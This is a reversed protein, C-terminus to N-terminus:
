WLFTGGPEVTRADARRGLLGHVLGLGKALVGNVKGFPLAAVLLFPWALLDFLVFSAWRGPSPHRELFRWSGLGNLYKRRPSYGGGTAGSGTHRALVEGVCYQEYGAEGLRLGLDVDELYAFYAEDFAGVAELAETRVLLACGPVYDVAVTRQWREGDEAGNGLLTSLNPGLGCLGGAAWLKSSDGLLVRPGVAAISDRASLVGLLRALTGSALTADNNLFLVAEAGREMAHRAGLNAAGGFGQNAGNAIGVVEPFARAIAECSGDSSANDVFVIREPSLGSELLSDLASQNAEVGGNWNVVVAWTSALRPKM